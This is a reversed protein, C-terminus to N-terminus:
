PNTLEQKEKWKPLSVFALLAIIMAATVAITGLPVEPVVNGPTITKEETANGTLGDNDTVRLTVLYIGPFSYAHEVVDPVTYVEDYVGDGDWDWEYQVITGDPDFSDSPDFTISAGVPAVHVSETFSAEPFVCVHAGLKASILYFDLLEIEGDSNVDANPDWRESGPYSGFANAVFFIDSLDVVGDRNVDEPLDGEYCPPSLSGGLSVM